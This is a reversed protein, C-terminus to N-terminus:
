FVWGEEQFIKRCRQCTVDETGPEPYSTHRPAHGCLTRTLDQVDALHHTTPNRNHLNTTLIRCRSELELKARLAQVWPRRRYGRYWGRLEERSPMPPRSRPKAATM